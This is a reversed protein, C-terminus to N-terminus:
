GTKIASAKVRDGGKEIRSKELFDEIDSRKFRILDGMRYCPILGSKAMRYPWM